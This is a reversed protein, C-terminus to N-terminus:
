KGEKLVSNRWELKFFPKSERTKKDKQNHPKSAGYSSKYSRRKLQQEFMIAKHLLEEMEVYHHVELTDMTDRSLGGMFRAMTAERDQQIDARLM